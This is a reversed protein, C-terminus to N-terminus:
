PQCKRDKLHSAGGIVGDERAKALLGNVTSEVENYTANSLAALELPETDIYRAVDHYVWLPLERNNEYEKLFTNFRMDDVHERLKFPLVPM